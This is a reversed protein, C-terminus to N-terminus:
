RYVFTVNDPLRNLLSEVQDRPLRGNGIGPFNIRFQIDKNRQSVTHLDSASHMIMTILAKDKWHHKVQFLAFGVTDATPERVMLFGYDSKGQNDARWKIIANAAELAIGPIREVAQKAAGAGMVLTGDHKIVGNTTVAIVGLGDDVRPDKWLEAKIIRSM